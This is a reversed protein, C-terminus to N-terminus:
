SSTDLTRSSLGVGDFEALILAAIVTLILIQGYFGIIPPGYFGVTTGAARLARESKILPSFNTCWFRAPITVPRMEVSQGEYRYHWAQEESKQYFRSYLQAILTQNNEELVRDVLVAEENLYWNNSSLAQELLSEVELHMLFRIILMINDPVLAVIPSEPSDFARKLLLAHSTIHPPLIMAVVM